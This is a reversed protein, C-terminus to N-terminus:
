RSLRAIKHAALPHNSRDVGFAPDWGVLTWQVEGNADLVVWAGHETTMGRLLSGTEAVRVTLDCSDAVIELERNGIAGSLRWRGAIADAGKRCWKQGKSDRRRAEIESVSTQAIEATLPPITMDTPPAGCDRVQVGKVNCRKEVCDSATEPTPCRVRCQSSCPAWSLDPRLDSPPAGRGGRIIGRWVIGKAGHYEYDGRLEGDEFVYHYTYDQKGHQDSAIQFQTSVELGHETREVRVGSSGHRVLNEAYRRPGDGTKRLTANMSCGELQELMLEYHGTAGHWRVSDNAWVVINDHKWLGAIEACEAPTPIRSPAGVEQLTKARTTEQVGWFAAVVLTMGVGVGVGLLIRRWRTNVKQLENVLATVTPFRRAPEPDLGRRLTRVLAATIPAPPDAELDRPPLRGTLAEWATAAFSFQDSRPSAVGRLAEPAMYEPTGPSVGVRTIRNSVLDPASEVPRSPSPAQVQGLEGRALGFDVVRVGGQEDIMVNEPKFDRHILGAHHAASLGDGAAMLVRLIESRTQGKALWARLSEGEIFAMSVFLCELRTDGAELVGRDHDHVRVVNPHELRALSQAERLTAQELVPDAIPPYIKLAIERHLRTDKARCVLGSAGRGRLELIEYRQAVTPRTAGFDALLLQSGVADELAVIPPKKTVPRSSSRALECVDDRALPHIDLTLSALHTRDRRYYDVYSRVVRLM